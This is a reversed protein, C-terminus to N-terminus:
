AIAPRPALRNLLATIEGHSYYALVVRGSEGTGPDIRVDVRLSESLRREAEAIWAPRSAATSTEGSNRANTASEPRAEERVMREIDRVSLEKRIATELVRLVLSESPLGLMARAHGMTILGKSVADQAAQPLELLRLHNTVTTRRLGVKTAVADQTVGLREILARFGRAREIPDLDRRQVNEVLALELMMDDTVDERVQAPISELGALRAARWRREGAILQYGGDVARVVVPQLVGHQRISDRLEELAVPDINRRPQFPNTAIENLGLERLGSAEPSPALLSDLGRGLRRQM